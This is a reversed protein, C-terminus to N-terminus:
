ALSFFDKFTEDLWSWVYSKVYSNTHITQCRKVDNRALWYHDESTHPTSFSYPVGRGSRSPSSTM